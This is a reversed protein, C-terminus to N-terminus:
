NTHILLETWATAQAKLEEVTEFTTSEDIIATQKTTPPHRWCRVTVNVRQWLPKTRTTAHQWYMHQSDPNHEHDFGVVYGTKKESNDCALSVNNALISIHIVM